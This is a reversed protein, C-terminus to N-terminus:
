SPSCPAEELAKSILEGVDRSLGPHAGIRDLETRMLARRHADFRRWRILPRLMRAAVQPNRDNLAIVQDAQFRYGAGSSVHFHIQNAAFGGLLAYIKNPEGADFAEHQLLAQVRALVDPWDAMAQLGLWKNVVLAEGRWQSLFSDLAPQAIDPGLTLLASLASIQDTMSNAEAFQAQAAQQALAGGNEALLNLAVNRLRRKGISQPSLDYDRSQFRDRLALLAPAFREALARWAFKRAAYISEVAIESMAEGLATSSPLMLAEAAFAPDRDAEDLVKGWAAAFTENLHLPRGAKHDEVLTLLLDLALSQGAEWRNFFDSDHALLFALESTSHHARLVVPASFGRLLSPIPPSVVDEFVFSQETETLNLVRSTGQAASEGALRLPLDQGDEGVLGVSVPIHFPLKTPQGPTPATQQGLTLTLTRAASDHVWNASVHPTGAQEYWRRFQKLDVGSAAEMAAVFDECTVAQGDHRQFYLDMGRRFAERGILTQIMRIVEAGKSYVTATYFNNIEVYSDPRIPHAMPSNDEPFQAARLALVDEIRKLARSNLDASFEQDRFVTLGEKLTLQFWDRCTVRNGTWNHFYEHAIVSEIGMFDGDTATSQKALVYKSNFVNLSKNEMAGMNFHSVAVVNYIDLDYELGFREEDWAMAKALSALAHPVQDENGQEVWFKLAVARGSRTTFRGEVLALEGAVLAFLYSPKPFPDVWITRHFGDALEAQEVLNGNSLLVPYRGREAEITVRFRSMVDPRDPFWTIRRFGQAECQTCLLPGSQYLGQLASNQSPDIEVLTELVFSEAPPAKLSLQGPTLEYPVEAGDLTVSLTELSEGDLVVPTDPATTAARRLTLRARVTVKPSGIRFALDVEEVLYAPSTYASRLIVNSQTM